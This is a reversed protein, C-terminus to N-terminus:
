IEVASGSEAPRLAAPLETVKPLTRPAGGSADVLFQMIEAMVPLRLLCGLLAWGLHLHELGRAFAVVGQVEYEGCTYCLREPAGGAKSQAAEFRLGTPSRKVFFLALEQCPGCGAGVYLVASNPVYPRLRPRWYKVQRQYETYRAGFRVGFHEMEEWLGFGTGFIVAVGVPVLLLESRLLIAIGLLGLTMLLQMPNRVYAYLGSTVLEQPPDLPMPTGRGRKMFEIVASAALALAVGIGHLLLSAEFTSWMEFGALMPELQGEYAILPLGLLTISGFAIMQGLVRLQLQSRERTWLALLRAPVLVGAVMLAEGLWWNPGLVVLPALNPLVLIDLALGLGVIYRTRLGTLEPVVSWLILWGLVFDVPISMFTGGTANFRWWGMEIALRHVAFLSPLAWAVGVISAALAQPHHRRLRWLILALICAPWCVLM